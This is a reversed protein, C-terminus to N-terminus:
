APFSYLSTALRIKVSASSAMLCSNWKLSAPSSSALVKEEAASNRKKMGYM